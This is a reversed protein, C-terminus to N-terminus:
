GIAAEAETIPNGSGSYTFQVSIEGTEDSDDVKTGVRAFASLDANVTVSIITYTVNVSHNDADVALGIDPYFSRTKASITKTVPM